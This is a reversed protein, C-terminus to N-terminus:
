VEEGIINMARAVTIVRQARMVVPKDVMKGDLSVVGSGRKEAEEAAKIIRLAKEIDKDTPRFM